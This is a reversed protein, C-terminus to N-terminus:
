ARCGYNQCIECWPRGQADVASKGGKGKGGSTNTNNGGKRGGKGKGKKGGKASGYPAYGLTLSRAYCADFFQAMLDLEVGAEEEGRLVRELGMLACSEGWTDVEQVCQVFKQTHSILDPPPVGKSREYAVLQCSAKRCLTKGCHRHAPKAVNELFFRHFMQLSRGVSSVQFMAKVREPLPNRDLFPFHRRVRPASRTFSEELASLVVDSWDYRDSVALLCFFEGLNPCDVKSRAAGKVFNGIQAETQKRLVPFKELLLLLLHHFGM